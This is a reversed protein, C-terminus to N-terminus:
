ARHEARWALLAMPRDTELQDVGLSRCLEADAPDDVTWVRVTQGAAIWRRIAGPDSRVLDIDPGAGGVRRTEILARGAALAASLQEQLAALTAADADGVDIAYSLDSLDAAATLITIHRSPVTPLLVTLSRPNFTMLSIQVDGLTGTAADWGTEELVRLVAADLAIDAPNPHKIEVALIVPRSASRAIAILERLTVPGGSGADWPLERLEALSLDRVARPDGTLRMVTADHHCVVEDDGTLMVDCEVGDAGLDFAAQFAARTQEPHGTEAWAGRHALIRM